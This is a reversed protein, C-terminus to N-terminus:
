PNPKQKFKGDRQAQGKGRVKGERQGKGPRRMGEPRPPPILYVANIQELTECDLQYVVSGNIIYLYPKEVIMVPAPRPMMPMMRRQADPRDGPLALPATPKTRVPADGQALATACIAATLLVTVAILGYRWISTKM